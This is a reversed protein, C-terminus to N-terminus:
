ILKSLLSGIWEELQGHLTSIKILIHLLHTIKKANLTYQAIHLSLGKKNM